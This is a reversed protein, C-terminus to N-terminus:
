RRTQALALSAAEPLAAVLNLAHASAATGRAARAKIGHIIAAFRFMNFALYFNLDSIEARGTRACYDAVYSREDPVNLALLDVGRLGSVINPPLRWAMLHYAFDALPHGLTSLEWDLVAVVRPETPHFIMNDLRYDGHVVSTEETKPLNRPLWDILQEMDSNSGAESLDARYQRTWRRLQRDVYGEVRGFDRLGADQWRIQHLQALTANMADYYAPRYPTSIEPLTSDWFVRGEVCDMVYFWTGIIQDDTCLGYIRPVPFGTSGLAAMVRAERDVAHAGILLQGPPKRRLVYSRDATTLKYTPNSQGGKFKRAELSGRFGEVNQSMWRELAALDIRHREDIEMTGVNQDTRNAKM